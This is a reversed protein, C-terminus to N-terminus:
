NAEFERYEDHVAFNVALGCRAILQFRDVVKPTVRRIASIRSSRVHAFGYIVDDRIVIRNGTLEDDLLEFGSGDFNALCFFM